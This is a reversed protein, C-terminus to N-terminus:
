NKVYSSDTIKLVIMLWLKLKKFVSGANIQAVRTLSLPLFFTPLICCKNRPFYPLPRLALLSKIAARRDCIAVGREREEREKRTNIEEGRKQLDM